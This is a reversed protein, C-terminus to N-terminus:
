KIEEIKRITGIEWGDYRNFVMWYGDYSWMCFPDGERPSENLIKFRKGDREIPTNYDIRKRAEAHLLADIYNM